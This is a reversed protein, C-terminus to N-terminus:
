DIYRLILDVIEDETKGDARIVLDYNRTDYRTTGAFKKVYNERMKDVDDIIKAAEDASIGRKNVIRQIRQEMPSTILINLRNPHDQFVFFGSRGAIVCSEAKAMDQLIKVEDKFVDSANLLDPENIVSSTNEKVFGLVRLFDSWWDHERGKLSEIEEGRLNYKKCLADIVGKDYFTVGLKAAVIEGITRGGSGVERNITIVFKENKNM